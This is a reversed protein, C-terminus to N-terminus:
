KKEAVIKNEIQGIGEIATVLTQGDALYVAPKRAHGVGGPTGTVLVDGPNLPLIQTIYAILKAPTFVQDSIDTSQMKVGDVTASLEGGLKYSDSTVLYPGFPATKEFTKGALWETTRYQFDRMTIDNVISYGAIYDNANAESVRSAKKGIVVALEAEWDVNEGAHAPLVIDDFPGILAEPYKAFLTPYTPLDRGMEKIHNAYNLGVCIIKSPEPNVPAWNKPQIDSLKHSAGAAAEAKAKWDDHKLLEGVHAFGTIEVAADADVRVAVTRDALRLTALKM